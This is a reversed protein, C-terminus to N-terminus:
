TADDKEKFIFETKENKLSMLCNICRAREEESFIGYIVIKKLIIEENSYDCFVECEYNLENKRLLEEAKKKIISEGQALLLEKENSEAIEFSNSFDFNLDLSKEGSGFFSFAAYIVVLSCLIKFSPKLNGEPILNIIVGSAVSVVAMLRCWSEIKEM